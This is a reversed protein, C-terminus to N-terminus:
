VEASQEHNNETYKDRHTEPVKANMELIPTFEGKKDSILIDRDKTLIVINKTTMGFDYIDTKIKCPSALVDSTEIGAKCEANNGWTYLEGDYTLAACTNGNVDIKDVGSMIHILQAKFEGGANGLQGLTNTGATYLEGNVTLVVSYYNGVKIDKVGQMIKILENSSVATKNGLQSYSNDGVAYLTGFKDVIMSHTDSIAATAVNNMIFVPSNKTKVTTDGLQAYENFGIAYLKDDNTIYFLSNDTFSCYRVNSAITENNYELIKEEYKSYLFYGNLKLNGNETIVASLTKSGDAYLIGNSLTTFSHDEADENLIFLDKKGNTFLVADKQTYINAPLFPYAKEEGSKELTQSYKDQIDYNNVKNFFNINNAKCYIITVIVTLIIGVFALISLIRNIQKFTNTNKRLMFVTIFYGIISIATAVSLIILLILLM